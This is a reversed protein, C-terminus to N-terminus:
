KKVSLQFASNMIPELDVLRKSESSTQKKIGPGAILIPIRQASEQAGGHDGLKGFGVNDALLVVIDPAKDSAMTNVLEQDHTKAWTQFAKPETKTNNYVETYALPTVKRNLAYIKTAKSIEKTASIAKQLNEETSDRLWIRIATDQETAKVKGMQSVRDIWFPETKTGDKNKMGGNGLYISETQGGHDATSIILTSNLLKDSELQKLLRGLQEDAIKAIDKLHAPPVFALPNQGDTEGIMHGFKDISGFTMFLAGWDKESKMIDIGADAVWVDGGLHTKDEGPFFQNGELGYFSDGTGYNNKADVEYRKNSQIYSPVNVGYPQWFKGDKDKKMYIISDSYPGGMALTAYNKQGIAFVKKGTSEKFKKIFFTDEPLSSMVKLFTEQPAKQVDVVKDKEGWLGQKDIAIADGWPLDKPLRGTTMVIHSVVTISPLDGVYANKYNTGMARLKKFNKLDFRDIYDPRMQDFVLFLLHDPKKPSAAFLTPQYFSVLLLLVILNKM